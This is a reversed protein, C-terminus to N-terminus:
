YAELLTACINIIRACFIHAHIYTKIVAVSDRETSFNRKEINKNRSNKRKYTHHRNGLSTM